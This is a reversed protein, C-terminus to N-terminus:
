SGAVTLLMFVIRNYEHVYTTMIGNNYNVSTLAPYSQQYGQGGVHQMASPSSQPRCWSAERYWHDIHTTDEAILDKQWTRTPLM